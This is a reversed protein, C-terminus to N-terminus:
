YIYTQSGPRLASAGRGPGPRVQAPRRHVTHIYIYISMIIYVCLYICSYMHIYIYIYVCTYIYIYIYIYIYMHIYIYIYIYVCDSRIVATRVDADFVELDDGIPEVGCLDVSTGPIIHYLTSDCELINCCSMDYSVTIYHIIIHIYIYIDYIYIYIYVYIYIYICAYM